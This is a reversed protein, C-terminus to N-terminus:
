KKKMKIKNKPDQLLPGFSVIIYHMSIVLNKYNDEKMSSSLNPM